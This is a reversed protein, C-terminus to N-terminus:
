YLTYRYSDAVRQLNGEPTSEKASPMTGYLYNAFAGQDNTVRTNATSYFLRNSQDLEFNTWMDGFLQKNTNEIDSNLNQVTKKVDKTIKEEVKVNFAPPASKREPNDMIETLLVNSFPNKKNGEKFQTKLVQELTVKNEDSNSFGEKEKEKEKEKEISNTKFYYFIAISFVTIIGILLIKTSFTFIYALVTIIIILRTISNLKEEYNMNISPIISMNNFLIIPNNLWFNLSM